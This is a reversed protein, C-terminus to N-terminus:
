TLLRPRRPRRRRGSRPAGSTARRVGQRRVGHQRVGQRRVGHEILDNILVMLTGILIIAAFALALLIMPSM